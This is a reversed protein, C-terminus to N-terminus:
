SLQTFNLDIPIPLLFAEEVLQEEFSEPDEIYQVPVFVRRMKHLDDNSRGEFILPENTYWSMLEWDWDKFMPNCEDKNVRQLLELYSELLNLPKSGLQDVHAKMEYYQALWTDLKDAEASPQEGINSM